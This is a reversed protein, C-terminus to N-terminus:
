DLDIRTEINHLLFEMSKSNLHHAIHSITQKAKSKELLYTFYVLKDGFQSHLLQRRVSETRLKDPLCNMLAQKVLEEEETIYSICTLTINKISLM